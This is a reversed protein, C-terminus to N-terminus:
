QILLVVDDEGMSMFEKMFIFVHLLFIYNKVKKQAVNSCTLQFM